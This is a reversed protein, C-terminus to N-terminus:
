NPVRNKIFSEWMQAVIKRGSVIEDYQMVSNTRIKARGIPVEYIPVGRRIAQVLMNTDYSFSEGHVKQLWALDKHPLFRLGTQTDLLKKRFLLEFLINAARTQLVNLMPMNETQLERVGLIIGDSFVKRQELVLEVDELDHQGHAGVTLVGECTKKRRLIHLIGNKIARGKGGNVENTIVTCGKLQQLEAFIPKYKEGSGDDVVLVDAMNLLQKVFQVLTSLPNYAPILIVIKNM